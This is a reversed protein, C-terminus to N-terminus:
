DKFINAQPNFLVGSCCEVLLSHSFTPTQVLPHTHDSYLLFSVSSLCINMDFCCCSTVHLQTIQSSQHCCLREPENSTCFFTGDRSKPGKPFVVATCAVYLVTGIHISWTSYTRATCLVLLFLINSPFPFYEAKHDSFQPTLSVNTPCNLHLFSPCPINM